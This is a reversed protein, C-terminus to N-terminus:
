SVPSSDLPHCETTPAAGLALSRALRFSPTPLDPKRLSELQPTLAAMEANVDALSRDTDQQGSILGGPPNRSLAPTAPRQETM